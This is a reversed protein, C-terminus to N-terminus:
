YLVVFFFDVITSRQLCHVKISRPYVWLYSLPREETERTPQQAVFSVYKPLNLKGFISWKKASIAVQFKPSIFM